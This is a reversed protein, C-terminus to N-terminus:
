GPLTAMVAVGVVFLLGAFGRQLARVPLRPALGLGVLSGAIGVSAFVAVLGLDLRAADPGLLHAALGALANAAIVLLSTGAARALPLRALLVLVPVVLFGGGVGLFGTLVGVGLGALLALAPQVRAVPAPPRGARRLLEVGAAVVLLAFSAATVREPVVRHLGAGLWAGLLGPGVLSAAWRGDVRGRRLQVLAGVASIAAVIALAETVATREDRGALFVLVPVTLISGGSGLLGLSLGVLAAGIWAALV